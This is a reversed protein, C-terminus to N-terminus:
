LGDFGVYEGFTTGRVFYGWDEVLAMTVFDRLAGGQADGYVEAKKQM